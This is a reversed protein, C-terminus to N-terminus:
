LFSLNLYLPQTGAGLMRWSFVVRRRMFVKVSVVTVARITNVQASAVKESSAVVSKANLM